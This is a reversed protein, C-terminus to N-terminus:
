KASLTSLAVPSIMLSEAATGASFQAPFLGPRGVDDTRDKAAAM